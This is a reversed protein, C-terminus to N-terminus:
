ETETHGVRDVATGVRDGASHLPPTVLSPVIKLRADLRADNLRLVRDNSLKSESAVKMVQEFTVKACTMRSSKAKEARVEEEVNAKDQKRRGERNIESIAPFARQLWCLGLYEDVQQGIM